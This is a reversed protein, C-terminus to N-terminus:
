NLKQNTLALCKIGSGTIDNSQSIENKFIRIGNERGNTIGSSDEQTAYYKKYCMMRIKKRQRM